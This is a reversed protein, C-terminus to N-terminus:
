RALHFKQTKKPTVLLCSTCVCVIWQLMSGAVAAQCKLSSQDRMSKYAYGIVCGRVTLPVDTFIKFKKLAVGVTQCVLKADYLKPL